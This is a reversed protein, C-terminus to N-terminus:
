TTMEAYLREADDTTIQDARLAVLRRVLALSAPTVQQITYADVRRGATHVLDILDVGANDAATVIEHALYILEAGPAAALAAEIWGAFDGLARLAELSGGHCPDYGM